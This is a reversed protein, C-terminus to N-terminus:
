NRVSIINLEMRKISIHPPLFQRLKQMKKEDLSRLSIWLESFSGMNQHVLYELDGLVKLGSVYRGQKQADDDIFGIPHIDKYKENRKIEDLILKGAVGAGYLIIKQTRKSLQYSRIVTDFFRFSLRSGVLVFFLFLGFFLYFSIDFSLRFGLTNIASIVLVSALTSRFFPFLDEISFLEWIGRYLNSWGFILVTVIVAVPLTVFHVYSDFAYEHTFLVYSCYYIIAVFIADLFVELMGKKYMVEYVVPTWKKEKTIEGERLVKKRGLYIGFVIMFLAYFRFIVISVSPFIAMLIAILGGFAALTYLLIVTNRESFGLGVLRHSSHDKGGQSVPVGSVKRTITVLLTDFVPIALVAVPVLISFFYPYYGYHSEFNHFPGPISLAALTCGLFVSGADGMFITAPPYNFFLFGFVAAVLNLMIAVFLFNVSGNGLLFSMSVLTLGAVVVIGSSLGDMNDLMNIANIMGIIWFYSLLIDIIPFGVVTFRINMAILLSAVIVQGIIKTIPRFRLVDDLLGLVFSFSTALLVVLFTSSSKGVDLWYVTFLSTVIFAFFIGCGGYLATPKQHWRDRTPNAVWGYKRALTRVSWM